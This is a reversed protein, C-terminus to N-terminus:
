FKVSVSVIAAGYAAATVIGALGHYDAAGHTRQGQSRQHYALIGLVPTVIMGTGHIWALIRHARIPGRTETGKVKPAFIAFSATTWYMGATVAGLAAHVNRGTRSPERGGAYLSAVVTAIMPATTILGLRQHTKLMHSRKNLRAQEEPNGKLQEQSFGLDSLSPASLNTAALAVDLTKTEGTALTVKVTKAPLGEASVSVEYDGAALNPVSYAGAQNTRVDTSQGTQVNKISVSANAVVSGGAGTVTGSLAATEVQALSPTAGAFCIATLAISVLIIHPKSSM